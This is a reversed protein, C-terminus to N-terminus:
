HGVFSAKRRTLFADTGEKMDQTSFALGFAQTEYDLGAELAGEGAIIM